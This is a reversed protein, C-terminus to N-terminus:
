KFRKCFQALTIKGLTNDIAQEVETYLEEIHVNIQKGITCSPNPKNKAKGLVAVPKVIAYIDSIRIQRAPRSLTYGGNKGESSVVLDHRSLESLEKRVLVPNINISDAIIESSLLEESTCLLTLIHLAIPFRGTM